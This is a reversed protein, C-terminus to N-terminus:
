SEIYWATASSVFTYADWQNYIGLGISSRDTGDITVGVANTRVQINTVTTIVKVGVRRGLSPAPLTIVQSSANVLVYDNTIASYTAGSQTTVNWISPTSVAILGLNSLADSLGQVTTVASPQVIPPNGFFSLKAGTFGITTGAGSGISMYTGLPYEIADGEMIFHGKIGLAVGVGQTNTIPPNVYLTIPTGDWADEPGLYTVTYNPSLIEIEKQVVGFANPANASPWEKTGPDIIM